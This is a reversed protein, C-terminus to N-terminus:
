RTLRGDPAWPAAATGWACSVLDWGARVAPWSAWVSPGTVVIGQANATTPVGSGALRGAPGDPRTTAQPSRM